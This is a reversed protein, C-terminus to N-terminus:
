PDERRLSREIALAGLPVVSLALLSLARRLPWRRELSARLLALGFLLFLLGHLSGLVRVPGPLGWVHKLPTAALLLLLSAGELGSLARLARLPNM